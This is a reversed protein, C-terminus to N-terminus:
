IHPVKGKLDPMDPKPAHEEIWYKFEKYKEKFMNEAYKPFIPALVEVARLLPRSLKSGGLMPGAKDTYATIIALAVCIVVVGKVFGALAGLLRDVWGLMAARVFSSLVRGLVSLGISVALFVVVFSLIHAAQPGLGREALMQGVPVHLYLSAVVGLGVALISFVEKIFGQKLSFVTSAGIVLVIILDITNM